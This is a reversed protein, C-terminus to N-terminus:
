LLFAPIRSLQALTAFLFHNQINIIVPPNVLPHGFSNGICIQKVIRGIQAEVVIANQIINSEARRSVTHKHM